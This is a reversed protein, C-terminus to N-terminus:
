DKRRVAGSVVDVQWDPDCRLAHRLIWTAIREDIACGYVSNATIAVDHLYFEDGQEQNHALAQSLGILVSNADM